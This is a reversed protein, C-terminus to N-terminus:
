FAQSGAAHVLADHSYLWSNYEQPDNAALQEDRLQQEPGDPLHEEHAAERSRRQVETARGIRLLQYRQLAQAVDAARVGALCESLCAADEFAQGAGQALFPFMPHASDGLLAVRGVTWRPLPERELMAWRTATSSAALLDTLRSDWGEFEAVLDGVDGTTAWSEANWEPVPTVAVANVWERNRIPYHVVHRGPGIWLAQAPRLAFESARQGPIMCRWLCLGSFSAPMVDAVAGRVVSHIGDAGIVVDAEATSGDAFSLRAAKEGQEVGTCKRGLKITEGPVVSLLIDLLDARHIFYGHAGYRRFARAGREGRDQAFLVSGDQWRRFEWGTEIIEGAKNMAETLGLHHLVRGANAGMNIGAGVYSLEPAQEFVTVQVGARYLFAAACLGGLGGGVIAVRLGRSSTGDNAM